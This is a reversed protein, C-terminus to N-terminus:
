RKLNISNIDHGLSSKTPHQRQKINTVNFLTKWLKYYELIVNKDTNSFSILGSKQNLYGDAVLFGLLRSLEPSISNDTNWIENNKSILVIDGVCVDEFKKFFLNGFTNICLIAHEYTGEEEFGKCTTIKKTREINFKFWNSTKNLERDGIMNYNLISTNCVTNNVNYFKPINDIQILGKNTFTISDGVICKGSGAGASVILNTDLHKVAEIQPASLKDFDGM